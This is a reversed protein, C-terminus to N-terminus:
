RTGLPHPLLQGGGLELGGAEAREGVAVRAVEGAALALPERQLDHELALRRGDDAEVLRRAAHVAGVLVREGVAQALEGLPPARHEDGGM